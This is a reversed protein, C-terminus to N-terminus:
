KVTSLKAPYRSEDNVTVVLAAASYSSFTATTISSDSTLVYSSLYTILSGTVQSTGVVIFSNM